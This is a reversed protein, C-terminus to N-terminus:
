GLYARAGATFAAAIRQQGAPSRLLALDSANRMNGCEIMVAPVGARNLTGLDSRQILGNSGVYNSPTLGGAVLADRVDTALASSPAVIGDTYGAIPGPHIVHFGHDSAAAGDAHISIMLTAHNRQATLGRQDVCPGWGVNDGRTLIVKAGQAVLDAQLQQAVSWNFESETYNGGATGTTNCEKQFGGADVPRAIDATHASNGGNHGPDIVIVKGALGSGSPASPPVVTTSPPVTPPPATAPVSSPAAAASVSTPPVSVTAVTTVTSTPEIGGASGKVDSGGSCGVLTLVVATVVAALHRRRARDTVSRHEWVM